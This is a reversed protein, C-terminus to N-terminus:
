RGVPSLTLSLALAKLGTLPRLATQSDAARVGPGEGWLSLPSPAYEAIRSQHVPQAAQCSVSSLCLGKVVESYAVGSSWNGRGVPSLTLSLALAKLGTLPRLATQSDAARVGPGEGWLSLPSPAYEAMRSPHLPQAAQCSVSSLCLGKVVESYAAGGSWNGRGVPSLTLSLALAKLGTLPRM